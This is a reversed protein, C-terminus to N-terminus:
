APKESKGNFMVMVFIPMSSNMVIIVQPLGKLSDYFEQKRASAKSGILLAFTL